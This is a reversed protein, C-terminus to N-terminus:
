EGEENLFWARRNAPFAEDIIGGDITRKLYVLTKTERTLKKTIEGM